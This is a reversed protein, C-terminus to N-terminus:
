ELKVIFDPLRGSFLTQLAETPSLDHKKCSSLYSRVRCFIQAGEFSRFCGSIKQQVKTMRIDRESQNNTFPVLIDTLFRLTEIEFERLRELLNRSKTKPVRGRKRPLDKPNPPPCESDGQTLVNRYRRRFNHAAKATLCGEANGANTTADNMELLLEQMKKAWRQGDQEWANELERLHHANCLAHLCNFQFYPKWHDHCLTGHFHELVGMAKMAEGGRNTHPFFLTWRDNSVSHLWVCAGNVNIGTEDAHLLPQVILQRTVISEFTELLGFAEKNFNFLSGASILIGCQDAFYDRIRDYPVLQQQSMYVAQAKVRNGYQVPRTVGAPFEAIFQDGRADELIEARYETVIKLIEIDIVQRSELGASRYQGSPITRRDVEIIEIWDPNEERQLTSGEHGNQGGPKRKKGSAKRKSGRKRYPDQSPPTSSNASNIGLKGLLLNIIVVLLDMMTRVQPSISKDERLTREVRRLTETVDIKGATMVGRVAEPVTPLGAVAAEVL